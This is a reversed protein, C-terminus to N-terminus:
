PVSSRENSLIIGRSTFHLWQAASLHHHECPNPAAFLRAKKKLRDTSQERRPDTAFTDDIEIQLVVPNKGNNSGLQIGNGVGMLFQM